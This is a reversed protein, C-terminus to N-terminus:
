GDTPLEVLGVWFADIAEVLGVTGEFTGPKVLYANAGREYAAAVDDGRASGSLILVPTTRRAPDAELADLFELGSMGPLGLDLVVVDIAPPSSGRGSGDLLSLAEEATPAVHLNGRVDSADMAERLLTADGPDDEVLLIELPAFPGTSPRGPEQGVSGDREGELLGDAPNGGPGDPADM